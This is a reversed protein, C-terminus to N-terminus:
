ANACCGAMEDVSRQAAQPRGPARLRQRLDQRRTAPTSPPWRTACRPFERVIAEVQRAKAETLELSSGVPTYFNLSTESFDAKPVFETGLLPVM